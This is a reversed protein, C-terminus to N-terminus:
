AWIEEGDMKEVYGTSFGLPAQSTGCDVKVNAPNAKDVQPKFDCQSIQYTDINDVKSIVILKGDEYFYNQVWDFTKDGRVIYYENDYTLITDVLSFVQFHTNDRVVLQNEGEQATPNKNSRGKDTVLLYPVQKMQADAVWIRILNLQNFIRFDSDANFVQSIMNGVPAFTARDIIQLFVTMANVLVDRSICGILLQEGHEGWRIGDQCATKGGLLKTDFVKVKDPSANYPFGSASTEEYIVKGKDTFILFSRDDIQKTYIFNGLLANDYNYSAFPQDPDVILNGVATADNASPNSQMASFSLKSLDAVKSFDFIQNMDIAYTDDKKLTADNLIAKKGVRQLAPAILALALLALILTKSTKM